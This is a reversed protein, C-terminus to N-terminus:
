PAHQMGARRRGLDLAPVAEIDRVLEFHQTGDFLQGVALRDFQDASVQRRVRDWVFEGAPGVLVQATRASSTNSCIV